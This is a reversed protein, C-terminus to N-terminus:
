TIRLDWLISFCLNATIHGLASKISVASPVGSSSFYNMSMKHGSAGSHVVHGPSRVPHLFVIEVYHTGTRKKNFDCRACELM